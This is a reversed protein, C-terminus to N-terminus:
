ADISKPRGQLFFPNSPPSALCAFYGLRLEINGGGLEVGSEGECINYISFIV